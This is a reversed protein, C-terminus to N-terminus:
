VWFHATYAEYPEANYLAQKFAHMIEIALLGVTGWRNWM